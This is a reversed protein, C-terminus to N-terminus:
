GELFHGIANLPKVDDCIIKAIAVMPVSLVAGPVGWMWFWFIISIVVVVPNLTFRRALLMPTVTEGEILHILLYAGAPLIARWIDNFSLVGAFLVLGVGIVPGIIPLYNLLFAIGGWLLPDGLGLAWASLGTAVGVAANMVSVTLLYASINEEIQQSLAVVRRKDSFSPVIEVMRRLFTDGSNLLFFLVVITEAFGSAINQTGNLLMAEISTGMNGGGSGGSDLKRFFTELSHIPETLFKLKDEVKQMGDPLKKAWETAPGAIASGVAVIVGIALILMITAAIPRPIHFREAQRMVPELLLKFMIALVIPLIIERAFYTVTLVALALLCADIVLRADWTGGEGEMQPVDLSKTQTTPYAITLPDNMHRTHGWAKHGVAFREIRRLLERTTAARVAATRRM